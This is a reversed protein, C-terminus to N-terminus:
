SNKRYFLKGMKRMFSFKLLKALIWFVCIKRFSHLKRMSQLASIGYLEGSYTHWCWCADWYSPEYYGRKPYKWPAEGGFHLVNEEKLSWTHPEFTFKMWKSDLLKIRNVFCANVTTQDHLQIDPHQQLFDKIRQVSNEARMQKLNCLLFGACIYSASNFKLGKKEFWKQEFSIGEYYDKVGHLITNESVSGWLNKIDTRWLFDVDCYVVHDCDKLIDPLLLRTYTLYNGHLMPLGEFHSLDLKHLQLTTNSHVTQLRKKLFSCDEEVLDDSLIHFSLGIDRSAHVAISYATVSLGWFYNKNSVLAIQVINEMKDIM